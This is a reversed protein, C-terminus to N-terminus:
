DYNEGESLSNNITELNEKSLARGESDKIELDFDGNQNLSFYLYYSFNYYNKDIDDSNENIKTFLNNYYFQSKDSKTLLNLVINNYSVNTTLYKEIDLNAKINNIDNNTLDEYANDTFCTVIINMIDLNKDLKFFLENLKVITNKNIYENIEDKIRIFYNIDHM